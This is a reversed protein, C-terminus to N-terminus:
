IYKGKKEGEEKSEKKPLYKDLFIKNLEFGEFLWNWEMYKPLVEEWVWRSLLHGLFVKREKLNPSEEEKRFAFWLAKSLERFATKWHYGFRLTPHAGQCCVNDLPEEMETVKLIKDEGQQEWPRRGDNVWAPNDIWEEKRIIDKWPRGNDQIIAKNDKNVVEKCLWIAKNLQSREKETLKDLEYPPLDREFEETRCETNFWDLAYEQDKQSPLPSDLFVGYNQNVNNLKGEKEKAWKVQNLIWNEWAREWLIFKSKKELHKNKFLEFETEIDMNPFKSLAYEKMKESLKFDKPLSIKNKPDKLKKPKLLLTSKFKKEKIRKKEEEKNKDEEEKDYTSKQDSFKYDQDYVNGFRSRDQNYIPDRISEGQDYTSKQDQDYTSKQDSAFKQDFPPRNKFLKEAHESLYKKYKENPLKNFIYLNTLTQGRRIIKILGAEKLENLHKNIQPQSLNMINILREIGPFCLKKNEWAFSLLVGYLMRGQISLIPNLQIYKPIPTFGKSFFTDEFIFNPEIKKM